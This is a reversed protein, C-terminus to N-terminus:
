EPQSPPQTDSAARIEAQMAAMDKKSQDALVRDTLQAKIQDVSIQQQQALRLIEIEREVQLRAIQAAHNQEAITQRLALESASNEAQTKTREVDAAARVQAAQVRPDPKQNEQAAKIAAAIEEDSRMIDAPDVHQARLAKEFLKKADVMPGYVPNAALQMLNAFAQNQIDRVMLTTSGRADVCFDGKIEDNDSYAMNYYYYRRIHPKTIYDDFQKVLRRLVVNASNMLMQMGGVTEPASGQQAQAIMPVATEQDSLKESLELIASLDGQRSDVQFQAFAKSVDQVDDSAFWLKRGQIEWRKNAPQVVGPKVIIQPGSSAGANDMMQRWASNTVQQQARMLYPIGYGWVSDVVKEWPFFDYPLAGDELPNLYIRVVIEDFMEVVASYSDLVDDDDEVVGAAILADRPIEGTYIWREYTEDSAPDRNSERSYEQFASKSSKKPSQELVERLAAKIYGPQKALERVQKPTDVLREYIGSGNHINDGCAPDPFVHRPDVRYSVPSLDEVIKLMFVTSNPNGPERLWAKRTKNLVVPGKLVGTGFVVADHIVKRVEANYDCETLQDDIEEEMAKARKYAAAHVAKAVDKIQMPKGSKPDVMPQRSAPDVMPQDNSFAQALDPIPTPAIGYNRDDTPLVIDALRAEAANSKQRTVGVFLTSRSPQNSAGMATPYGQEVTAMMSNAIKTAADTSHYQDSDERMRRDVGASQRARVWDDRKKALAAGFVRLVEQSDPSEAPDEAAPVVTMSPKGAELAQTQM